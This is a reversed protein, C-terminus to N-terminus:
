ARWASPARGYARKFARSFAEVSDYGVRRAVQMVALDTNALLGRAVHMRWDALYRIPPRGLVRRFREDLLSRSVSANSALEAVTWKREPHAHLQAMAPALVPDRLAAIWGRDSSPASALHIRLVEIVLLESLRTSPLEATKRETTVDLAYRVSADVWHQAAESPRVVFVPPLAAMAPDFLPDDSHLWGCVIDTLAGGAGHRLHPLTEWPPPDFLTLVPVCEAPEVGGMFHLDGYPLVVVDGKRAWFREGDPLSTWCEGDAIIHFYLLREAGPRLMGAASPPAAEFAWNETFEARFFIAGELRVQELADTLEPTETVADPTGTM